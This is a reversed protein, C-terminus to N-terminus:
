RRRQKPNNFKDWYKKGERITREKNRQKLDIIGTKDLVYLILRWVGYLVAFASFGVMFIVLLLQPIVIIGTVISVIWDWIKVFM